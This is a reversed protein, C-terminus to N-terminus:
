KAQYAKKVLARMADKMIATLQSKNMDYKFPILTANYHPSNSYAVRIYNGPNRGYERHVDVEYSGIRALSFTPFSIVKADFIELLDKEYSRAVERLFARVSKEHDLRTTRSAIDAQKREVIDAFANM